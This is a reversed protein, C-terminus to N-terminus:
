VNRSFLLDHRKKPDIGLKIMRKRLTYGNIGLLEAASNKGMIKGNTRRLVYRIYERELTELPVVPMNEDSLFPPFPLAPQKATSFLATDGSAPSPPGAKAQRAPCPSDSGPSFQVIGTRRAAVLAREIVNALERVNGPWDHRLLKEMEDASPRLSAPLGLEERKKHLFFFALDPIDELRERLPPLHIPFVNLRYYLDKRFSGERVRDPLSQNTAAIVRVDLRIPATGGLREMDKYELVRLLKSQAGEPLEGIEDLFITGTHAREFRGKKMRGAGTFANAEHGFFESELLHEPIAACNVKIFPRDARDSRHQIYDAIVEKGTGTEGTILVPTTTVAVDDAMRRVSSLGSSLGVLPPVGGTGPAFSEHMRRFRRHEQELARFHLFNIMYLSFPAALRNIMMGDERSFADARESFVDVFGIYKGEYHLHLVIASQYRSRGCESMYSRVPNDEARGTLVFDKTDHIIGQAFRFVDRPLRELSEGEERGDKACLAFRRVSSIEEEFVSLALADLDIYDSLFRMAKHLMTRIDPTGCIILTAKQFFDSFDHNQQPM